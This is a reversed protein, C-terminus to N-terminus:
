RYRGNGYEVRDPSLIEMPSHGLFYMRALHRPVQVCRHRLLDPRGLPVRRHLHSHVSHM